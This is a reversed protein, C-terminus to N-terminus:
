SKANQKYAAVTKLEVQSTQIYSSSNKLNMAGSLISYWAYFYVADNPDAEPLLEDRMFRQMWGLIDAMAQPSPHLACQAMALYVRVLKTGPRKEPQLIYECQSFGSRWDPQETFIFDEQLDACSEDGSLDNGSSNGAKSSLFNLALTEARKYDNSFYAAEIEFIRADSGKLLAGEEPSSYMFSKTRCIWANVTNTMYEASECFSCIEFIQLAIGYRGTEFFLRGRLFRARMGWMQQGLAFATEEAKLALREAKSINGYLLNIVSAFYCSLFVEEWQKSREARDLAFSIYELADDIRQRSLNVLSFLRYAPIADEGLNRNIIMVKRVSESATEINRSGIYYAALNAEAHALCGQYFPKGSAASLPLINERYALHIEKGDGWVLAKLTKYIYAYFPANHLGVASDFYGEDIAKEIGKYTGNFV